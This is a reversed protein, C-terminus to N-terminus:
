VPLNLHRVRIIDRTKRTVILRRCKDVKDAGVAVVVIVAWLLLLHLPLRLRLRLHSSARTVIARRKNVARFILSLISPTPQQSQWSRWTLISTHALSLALFLSLPLPLCVRSSSPLHYRFQMERKALYKFQTHIAAIQQSLLLACTAASLSSSLSLSLPTFSLAISLSIESIRQHCEIWTGSSLSFAAAATAGRCCKSGKIPKTRPPPLTYSPPPFNFLLKSHAKTRQCRCCAILSM